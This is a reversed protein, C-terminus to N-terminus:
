GKRGKEKGALSRAVPSLWIDPGVTDDDMKRKKEIINEIQTAVAKNSSLTTFSRAWGFLFISRNIPSLVSFVHEAIPPLDEMMSKVNADIIEVPLQWCEPVAHCSLPEFQRLRQQRSLTTDNGLDFLLATRKKETETGVIGVIDQMQIAAQRTCVLRKNMCAPWVSTSLLLDEKEMRIERRVAQNHWDKAELVSHSIDSVFALLITCDLNLTDSFSAYRDAAMIAAVDSIDSTALPLQESTRVEIGMERIRQLVHAVAQSTPPQSIRTLILCISPKTYRIRTATAARRLSEAQKLIGEFSEAESDMRKSDEDEEDSSDGVWGAKTLDWLIREETISSVKVWQLGGEAVIDVCVRHNQAGDDAM